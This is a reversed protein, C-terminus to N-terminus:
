VKLFIACTKKHWKCQFLDSLMSTNFVNNEIKNGMYGYINNIFCSIFFIINQVSKSVFIKKNVLTELFRLIFITVSYFKKFYNQADNKM